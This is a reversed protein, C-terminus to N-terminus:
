SGLEAMARCYLREAPTLRDLRVRFFSEDLEALALSGAHRADDVTIPSQTAENWVHLGWEQIFYPYGQTERVILAIADDNYAVAQRGAPLALADRAAEDDLRDIPVFQFLREAYSKAEGMKGLLQPLGAAV